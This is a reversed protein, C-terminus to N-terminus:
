TSRPLAFSLCQQLFGYQGCNKLDLKTGNRDQVTNGLTQFSKPSCTPWVPCMDALRFCSAEWGASRHICFWNGTTVSFSSRQITNLSLAPFVYLTLDPRLSFPFLESCERGGTAANERRHLAAMQPSPAPM